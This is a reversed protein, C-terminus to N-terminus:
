FLPSSSIVKLAKSWMRLVSEMKALKPYEYRDAICPSHDRAPNKRRRPRMIQFVYHLSEFKGRDPQRKDDLVAVHIPLLSLGCGIVVEVSHFLFIFHSICIFCFNIHVCLCFHLSRQGFADARVYIDDDFECNFAHLNRIVNCLEFSGDFRVRCGHAVVVLFQPMLLRFSHSGVFFDKAFADFVQNVSLVVSALRTITPCRSSRQPTRSGM